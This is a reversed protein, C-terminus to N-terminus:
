GCPARRALERGVVERPVVPVIVFGPMIPVTCETGRRMGALAEDDADARDAVRASYSPASGCVSARSPTLLTTVSVLM